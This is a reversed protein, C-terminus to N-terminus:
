CVAAKLWEAMEGPNVPRIIDSGAPRSGASATEARKLLMRITKTATCPRWWRTAPLPRMTGAKVEVRKGELDKYIAFFHTIEKLMHPYIESYNWVDAYRPNNKGVALVKEDPVGQDLMELLGIPRVETVCGVFSPADVLVLVDLPDGDESLTSPIFGYDGPYHVPSYLNRDLRFVHLTKDYEYKNIGEAPIEIVANIVEPCKQGVPLELYNVM